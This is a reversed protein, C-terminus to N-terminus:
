WGLSHSSVRCNAVAQSIISPQYITKEFGKWDIFMNWESCNRTSGHISKSTLQFPVFNIYLQNGQHYNISQRKITRQQEHQSPLPDFGQCQEHVDFYIPNISTFLWGFIADYTKVWPWIHKAQQKTHSTAWRPRRQHPRQDWPLSLSASSCLTFDSLRSRSFHCCAQLKTM